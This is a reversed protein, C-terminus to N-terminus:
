GSLCADGRGSGAIITDNGAGGFVIDSGDGATITDDGDLAWVIDRNRGTTIQNDLTNGTIWQRLPQDSGDYIIEDPGMNYIFIQEGEKVIEEREDLGKVQRGLLNLEGLLNQGFEGTFGGVLGSEDGGVGSATLDGAGEVLEDDAEGSGEFEPRDPLFEVVGAVLANAQTSSLRLESPASQSGPTWEWGSNVTSVSGLFTGDPSIFVIEGVFEQGTASREPLNLATIKEGDFELFVKTGRIGITAVPTKISMADPGIKAIQGSLFTAAGALLSFTASGDQKVPDYVLEDLVMRGDVGLSFTSTDALTIGISGDAGTELVDGQYVPDGLELQVQTGDTRTVVVSGELTEVTGIPEGPSVDGAQAYQGPARPGALRAALEGSLVTGEATVLDPPNEVVFFNRVLANEGEPGKLLLDPGFRVFEAATLWPVDVVVPDSGSGVDLLLVTERGSDFLPGAAGAGTKDSAVYAL